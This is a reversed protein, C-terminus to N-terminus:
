INKTLLVTSQAKNASGISAVCLQDKSFTARNLLHIAFKSKWDKIKTCSHNASELINVLEAFTAWKVLLEPIQFLSGKTIQFTYNVLIYQVVQEIQKAALEKTYRQSIRTKIMEFTLKETSDYFIASITLKADEIAKQSLHDPSNCPSHVSLRDSNNAFITDTPTDIWYNISSCFDSDSESPISQTFIEEITTPLPIRNDPITINRADISKTTSRTSCDIANRTYRQVKESDGQNSSPSSLLYTNPLDQLEEWFSYFTNNNNINVIKNEYLLM